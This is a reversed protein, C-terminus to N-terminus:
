FRSVVCASPPPLSMTPRPRCQIASSTFNWLSSLTSDHHACHTRCAPRSCTGISRYRVFLLGHFHRINPKSPVRLVPRVQGTVTDMSSKRAHNRKFSTSSNLQHAFFLAGLAAGEQHRQFAQAPLVVHLQGDVPVVPQLHPV